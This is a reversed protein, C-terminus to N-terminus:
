HPDARVRFQIGDGSGCAADPGSQARRSGVLLFPAQGVRGQEVVGVAGELIGDVAGFVQELQVPGLNAFLVAALIAAFLSIPAERTGASRSSSTKSRFM